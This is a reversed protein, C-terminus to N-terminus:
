EELGGQRLKLRMTNSGVELSEIRNWVNVFSAYEDSGRYAKLLTDVIQQSLMGIVPIASNNLYLKEMVFKVPTGETFHGKCFLTYKSSDGLIVIETSLSVYVGDPSLYVNPAGPLLLLNPAEDGSPAAAPRFKAAFWANLEGESLDVNVAQGALLQQRKTAWGQGRSTTGQFYYVDGPMPASLGKAELYTDLDKASSIVLPEYTSLYLFGLLGGLLAVIAGFFFVGFSSPGSSETKKTACM